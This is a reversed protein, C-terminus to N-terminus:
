MIVLQQSSINNKINALGISEGMGGILGIPLFFSQDKDM